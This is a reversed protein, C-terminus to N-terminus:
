VPNLLEASKEAVFGEPISQIKDFGFEVLAKEVIETLRAGQATMKFCPRTPLHGGYHMDITGLIGVLSEAPTAGTDDTFTTIGDRSKRLRAAAASNAPSQVVWVEEPIPLNEIREGFERDVVVWVNPSSVNSM